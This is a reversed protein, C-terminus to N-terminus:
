TPLVRSAFAPPLLFKGAKDRLGIEFAAQKLFMVSIESPSQHSERRM